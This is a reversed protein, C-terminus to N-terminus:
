VSRGLPFLSQFSLRRLVLVDICRSMFRSPRDFLPSPYRVFVFSLFIFPLNIEVPPPPPCAHATRFFLVFNILSICLLFLVFCTCTCEQLFYPFIAFSICLFLKEWYLVRKETFCRRQFCVIGTSTKLLPAHKWPACCRLMLMEKYILPSKNAFLELFCVLFVSLLM